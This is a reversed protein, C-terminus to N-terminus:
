QTNLERFDKLSGYKLPAWVYAGSRRLIKKSFFSILIAFYRNLSRHFKLTKKVFIFINESETKSQNLSKVLIEGHM